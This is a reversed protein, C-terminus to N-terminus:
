APFIRIPNEFSPSHFTCSAINGTYQRSINLYCHSGVITGRALSSNACITTFDGVKSTERINIGAELTVYDGITVEENLVVNPRLVSHRGITTRSGIFCGAHIISGEGITADDAVRAHPSILPGCCRYGRAAVAEQLARRVDNIYFENAAVCVDWESPSFKGLAELDFRYYDTSPIHLRQVEREPNSQVALSHVDALTSDPGVVLLPRM